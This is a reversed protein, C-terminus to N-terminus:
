SFPGKDVSHGSVAVVPRLVRSADIFLSYTIQGRTGTTPLFDFSM